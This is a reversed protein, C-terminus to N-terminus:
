AAILKEIKQIQTKRGEQSPAEVELALLIQQALAPHKKEFIAVAAVIVSARVVPDSFAASEIALSIDRPQNTRIVRVHEGDSLIQISTKKM